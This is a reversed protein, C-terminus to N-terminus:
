RTRKSTGSLINARLWRAAEIPLVDKNSLVWKGFRYGKVTLRFDQLSNGERNPDVFSPDIAGGFGLIDWLLQDRLLKDGQEDAKVADRWKQRVQDSISTRVQNLNGGNPDAPNDSSLEHGIVFQETLADPWTYAMAVATLFHGVQNSRKTTKTWDRGYFQNDRLEQKFYEDGCGFVYSDAFQLPLVFAESLGSTIADEGGRTMNLIWRLRTGATKGAVRFWLTSLENDEFLAILTLANRGATAPDKQTIEFFREEACRMHLALNAGGRCNPNYGSPDTLNTANAYAYLWANYSMPRNADGEWMDQTLFRGTTPALYRARLFVLGSNDTVEGTFGSISIGSGSSNLVTGYPQYGKALTVAGGANALQRVSGLADPLHYMFGALQQEGIRGNGYLYNNTGDALVQTLGANLDLTYRTTVSNVTQSVRDGMGNYAFAYMNAGQTLSTLRNAADYAYTSAGDNLLNGNNDWTQAVGGANTLRNASDYAYNTVTTQGSLTQTYVTRNGVADYTYHQPGFQKSL